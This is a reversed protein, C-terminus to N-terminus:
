LFTAETNKAIATTALKPVLEATAAVLFGVVLGEALDDALGAALGAAFSFATSFV